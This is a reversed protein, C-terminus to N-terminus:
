SSWAIASRNEPQADKIQTVKTRPMSYTGYVSAELVISTSWNRVMRAYHSRSICDSKSVAPGSTSPALWLSM